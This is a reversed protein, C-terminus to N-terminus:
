KSDKQTKVTVIDPIQYRKNQSARSTHAIHTLTVTLFPTFAAFSRARTIVISKWKRFKIERSFHIGEKSPFKLHLLETIKFLNFQCAKM